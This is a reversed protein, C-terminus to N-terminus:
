PYLCRDFHAPFVGFRNFMGCTDEVFKRLASKDIMVGHVVVGEAASV